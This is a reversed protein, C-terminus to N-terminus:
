HKHFVTLVFLTNVTNIVTDKSGRHIDYQDKSAVHSMWTGNFTVGLMQLSAVSDWMHGRMPM